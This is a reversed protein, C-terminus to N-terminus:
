NTSAARARPAGSPKRDTAVRKHTGSCGAVVLTALTMGFIARWPMAANNAEACVGVFVSFPFGDGPEGEGQSQIGLGKNGAFAAPRELIAKRSDNRDASEGQASTGSQRM